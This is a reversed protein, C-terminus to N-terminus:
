RSEEFARQLQGAADALRQAAAAPALADLDRHPAEVTLPLLVGREHLAKLLRLLDFEGAGPPLRAHLAEEHYDAIRRERTGDNLQLTVVEGRRLQALADWQAGGRMFHLADLVVGCNPRATARVIDLAAPLDACASVFPVFELACRLDFAACAAALTQMGAIMDDRTLSLDLAVAHVVTCGLAHATAAMDQCLTAFAALDRRPALSAFELQEIRLGCRQAQARLQAADVGQARQTEIESWFLSVGDFGAAAAARCREAHHLTPLSLQGLVLEATPM